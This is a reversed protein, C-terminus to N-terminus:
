LKFRYTATMEGSLSNARQSHGNYLKPTTYDSEQEHHWGYGGSLYVSWNKAPNWNSYLGLQGQRLTEGEYDFQSYNTRVGISLDPTFKYETALALMTEGDRVYDIDAYAPSNFRGRANGIINRTFQGVGNTKKAESYTLGGLIKWPTQPIRWEITASYHWARKDFDQKGRATSSTTRKADSGYEQEYIQTGLTIDPFADWWGEFGQKFLLDDAVGYFYYAKLPKTKYNIGGTIVHDVDRSEGNGDRIYMRDINPSDRRMVKGDLFLTDVSVNDIATNAFWGSHTNLSMRQSNSFIGTNKITFWGGKVNVKARLIDMKLKAYRQGIKTYGKAEGDDNYLIARSAFNDSAGLKAGSYYSADFGIFDAFYGSTYDVTLGQAWAQQVSTAYRGQENDYRNETKLYKWMNRASLEFSSDAFFPDDILTKEWDSANVDTAFFCCPSCAILLLKKITMM